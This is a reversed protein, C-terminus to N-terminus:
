PVSCFMRMQGEDQTPEQASAIANQRYIWESAENGRWEQGRYNGTRSEEFMVNKSALARRRISATM